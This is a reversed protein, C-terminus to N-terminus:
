FVDDSSHTLEVIFRNLVKQTAKYGPAQKGLKLNSLVRARLAELEAVQPLAITAREILLANEQRLFQVEALLRGVEEEQQTISPLEEEEEQRTIRPLFHNDDRAM